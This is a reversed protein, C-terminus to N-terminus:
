HNWQTVNIKKGLVKEIDRLEVVEKFFGREDENTERQYILLGPIETTQIMKPFDPDAPSLVLNYKDNM